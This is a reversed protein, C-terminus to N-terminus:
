LNVCTFCEPLTLIAPWETPFGRLGEGTDSQVPLQTTVDPSHAGNGMM